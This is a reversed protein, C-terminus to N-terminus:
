SKQATYLKQYYLILSIPFFVGWAIAVAIHGHDFISLAGIKAGGQYAMPGGILGFVVALPLRKYFKEFAFDYYPIFIFWIGWMNYPSLYGAQKFGIFGANLLIGDVVLASLLIFGFFKLFNPFTIASRSLKWDALVAAVGVLPALFQYSWNGWYAFVFWLTQFVIVRILSKM